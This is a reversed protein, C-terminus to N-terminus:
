DQHQAWSHKLALYSTEDLAIHFVDLNQDLPNWEVWESDTVRLLFLKGENTEPDREVREFRIYRMPDYGTVVRTRYTVELKKLM